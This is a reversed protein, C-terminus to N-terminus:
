AGASEAKLLSAFLGGTPLTAPPGSEAIVGDDLVFVRDAERASALRHAVTLLIGDSGCVTSKLAARLTADTTSDVFASAEDLVVIPPDFVLARALVLLQREGASLVHGHGGGTGALHTHLGKPLSRILDTAGVRALAREMHAIDVAPHGLSLNDAISSNFVQVRQPVFGLVRRRDEDSLTRPDVGALRVTGTWPDRLGALIALLTSKGAGTRGVVAVHEGPSAQLAVDRLVPRDALYGFTLGEVEVNAPDSPPATRRPPEDVPLALVDIVRDAGALAEQVTQWQEALATIPQIFRQFLLVFAALTGLSVGVTRLGGGAGVWLLGAIIASAVLGILPGYFTNYINARNFATLTQRLTNRFRTTFFEEKRLAKVVDAGLLDEHIHSALRGVAARNVRQAERVRFRILRGSIVLLPVTVLVALSLSPSLIMMAVAVAVLPVVEAVLAVVGRTVLEQVTELDATARSVTDGVPMRDHQDAPLRCIHTFLRVRLRHLMGQAIVATQWGYVMALAHRASTALLYLLAAGALGSTRGHLVNTDIVRRVVLPPVLELGAAATVALAVLVLRARWPSLLRVVERWAGGQHEGRRAEAM